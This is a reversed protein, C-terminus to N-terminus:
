GPQEEMLLLTLGQVSKIRVEVSLREEKSGYSEVMDESRTSVVAKCREKVRSFREEKSGHSKVLDGSSTGVVDKSNSARNNVLYSRVFGDKSQNVKLQDKFWSELSGAATSADM